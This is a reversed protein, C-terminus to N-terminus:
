NRAQGSYFRYQNGLVAKKGNRSKVEKELEM